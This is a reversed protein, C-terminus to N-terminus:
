SLLRSRCLSCYSQRFHIHCFSIGQRFKLAHLFGWLLLPSLSELVRAASKRAGNMLLDLQVALAGQLCLPVHRPVQLLVIVITFGVSWFFLTHCGRCACPAQRSTVDRTGDKLATWYNTSTSRANNFHVSPSTSHHTPTEIHLIHKPQANESSKNVKFTFEAQLQHLQLITGAPQQTTFHHCTIVSINALSRGSHVFSSVRHLLLCHLMAPKQHCLASM